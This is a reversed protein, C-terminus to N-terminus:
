EGLHLSSVETPAAPEVAHKAGKQAAKNAKSQREATERIKKNKIEQRLLAKIENSAKLNAAAAHQEPTMAALRATEAAQSHLNVMRKHEGLFRTTNRSTPALASKFSSVKKALAEKDKDEKLVKKAEAVKKEIKARIGSAIPSKSPTVTSGSIYSSLASGAQASLDRLWPRYAEAVLLRDIGHLAKGAKTKGDAKWNSKGDLVKNSLGTGVLTSVNTRQTAFPITILTDMKNNWAPIGLKFHFTAKAVHQANNQRQVGTPSSGGEVKIASKNFTVAFDKPKVTALRTSIAAHFAKAAEGTHNWFVTSKKVRKDAMTEPRLSPWTGELNITTTPTTKAGYSASPKLIVSRKFHVDEVEHYQEAGKYPTSGVATVGPNQVVDDMAKLLAVYYARYTLQFQRAMNTIQHVVADHGDAGAKTATDVGIRRGDQSLDNVLAQGIKNLLDVPILATPYVMHTLERRITAALKSTDINSKGGHSREIIIGNLAGGFQNNKSM